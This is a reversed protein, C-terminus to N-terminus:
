RSAVGSVIQLANIAEELGIRGDGNFDGLMVHNLQVIGVELNQWATLTVPLIMIVMM